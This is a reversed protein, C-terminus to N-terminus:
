LVVEIKIGHKEQIEIIKDTIKSLFWTKVSNKNTKEQKQTIM